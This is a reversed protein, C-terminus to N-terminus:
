MNRAGKHEDEPLCNYSYLKQYLEESNTATRYAPRSPIGDRGAYQVAVLVSRKYWFNYEYLQIGSSSCSPARFM